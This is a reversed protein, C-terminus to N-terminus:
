YRIEETTPKNKLPQGSVTKLLTIERMILEIWHKVRRDLGWIRISIRLPYSGDTVFELVEVVM